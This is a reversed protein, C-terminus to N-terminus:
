YELHDASTTEQITTHHHGTTVLFEQKCITGIVDPKRKTGTIVSNVMPISAQMSRTWHISVVESFSPRAMVRLAGTARRKGFSFTQYAKLYLRRQTLPCPCLCSDRCQGFEPEPYSLARSAKLNPRLQSTRLQALRRCPIPFLPHYLNKSTESIYYPPLTTYLKEKRYQAPPAPIFLFKSPSLPFPLAVLASINNQILLAFLGGQDAPAPQSFSSVVNEKRGGAQCILLQYVLLLLGLWEGEGYCRPILNNAQKGTGTEAADTAVIPDIMGVSYRQSVKYTYEITKLGASWCTDGWGGTWQRVM